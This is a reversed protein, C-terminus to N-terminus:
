IQWKYCIFLYLMSITRIRGIAIPIIELSKFISKLEEKLQNQNFSNMQALLAAFLIGNKIQELEQKSKRNLDIFVTQFDPLFGHFDVPYDKFFDAITKLEWKKNGHYYLIPIILEPQKQTKLQKRYALALYELLQFAVKPDKYSKHELLLCIKVSGNQTKIRWVLDSFSEELEDSIYSEPIQELSEPILHKLISRPLLEKFFDIAIEKDSLLTKIFKDHINNVKEPM